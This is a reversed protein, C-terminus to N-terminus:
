VIKNASRKSILSSKKREKKESCKKILKNNAPSNKENADM